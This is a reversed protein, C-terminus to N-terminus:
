CTKTEPGMAWVVRDPRATVTVSTGGATVTKTLTAWQSEPVWLWNEVGVYTRAPDQPATHVSATELELLGLARQSLQGPDPLEPEVGPPVRFMVVPDVGDVILACMWISGDTRGEWVPDSLPVNVQHIWCQNASNWVGWPAVCDVPTGDIRHCTQSAPTNTGDDDPADPTGPDTVPICIGADTPLPISGDPCASAPSAFLMLYGFVVTAVVGWRMLM